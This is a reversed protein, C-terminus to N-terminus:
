SRHSRWTKVRGFIGRILDFLSQYHSIIYNAGFIILAFRLVGRMHVVQVDFLLPISYVIGVIAAAFATISGARVRPNTQRAEYFMIVAITIFVTATIFSTIDDTLPTM